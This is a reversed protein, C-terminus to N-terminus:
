EAGDKRYSGICKGRFIVTLHPAYRWGSSAVPPACKVTIKRPSLIGPALPRTVGPNHAARYRHHTVAPVALRRFRSLRRADAAREYPKQGFPRSTASARLAALGGAKRASARARTTM